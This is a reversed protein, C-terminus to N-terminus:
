TAMVIADGSVWSMSATNPIWPTTRQGPRRCVTPDSIREADPLGGESSRTGALAGLAPEDGLVKTDRMDRGTVQQTVM